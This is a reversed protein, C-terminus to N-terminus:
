LISISGAQFSDSKPKRHFLNVFNQPNKDLSVGHNNILFSLQACFRVNIKDNKLKHVKKEKVLM